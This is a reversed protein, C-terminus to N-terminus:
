RMAFVWVTVVFLIALLVAVAALLLGRRLREGSTVNRTPDNDFIPQKPPPWTRIAQPDAATSVNDEHTLEM